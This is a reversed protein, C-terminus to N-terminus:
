EDNNEKILNELQEKTAKLVFSKDENAKFMIYCLIMLIFPESSSNTLKFFLYTLGGLVM